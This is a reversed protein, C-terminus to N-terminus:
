LWIYAQKQAISIKFEKASVLAKV